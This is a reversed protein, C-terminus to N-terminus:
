QFFDFQFPVLFRVYPNDSEEESAIIEGWRKQVKPGGDEILCDEFRDFLFIPRLNYGGKVSGKQEMFNLPIRLTTYLRLVESYQPFEADIDHNKRLHSAGYDELPICCKDHM